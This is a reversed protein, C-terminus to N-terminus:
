SRLKDYPSFASEGWNFYRQAALFVLVTSCMTALFMASVFAIQMDWDGTKLVKSSGLMLATLWSFYSIGAACIFLKVEGLPLQSLAHGALDRLRPIISHGILIGNVTLGSVVAIKTWLKPSFAGLDFGTLAYIMIMGTIWLVVVCLSILHHFLRIEAIRRDDFVKDLNFLIKADMYTAAGMGAAFALLHVARVLDLFVPNV